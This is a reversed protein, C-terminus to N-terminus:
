AAAWAASMRSSRAQGARRWAPLAARRRRDGRLHAGPRAPAAGQRITADGGGTYTRAWDDYFAHRGKFEAVTDNIASVNYEVLPFGDRALAIAPAFVEALSKRGYARVLECWGALNGPTGAAIPGRALEERDTFRGAPFESPVRTIFDLTRVRREAAIYCTAMGMGALGSMYPETVNLAAATAAAADFANGGARLIAAGAQAAQPHGAAVIGRLSSVSPRRGDVTNGGRDGGAAGVVAGSMCTALTGSLISRMGLAVVEHRREPVMVGLGGIVIGLSGFNAFGCLAYTLILRSRPAFTDPPLAAFNLYAVFENLVTKTGM